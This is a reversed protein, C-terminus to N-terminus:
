PDTLSSQPAGSRTGGGIELGNKSMVGEIESSPRARYKPEFRGPANLGGQGSRQTERRSDMSSGHPSTSFRPAPMLVNKKSPETLTLGSSRVIKKAPNPGGVKRNSM